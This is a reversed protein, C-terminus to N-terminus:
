EFFSCKVKIEYVHACIYYLFVAKYGEFVDVDEYLDIYSSIDLCDGVYYGAMHDDYVDECRYGLVIMCVGIDIVWGKVQM